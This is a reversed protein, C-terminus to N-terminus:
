AIVDGKYIKSINKLGFGCYNSQKDGSFDYFKLPEILNFKALSSVDKGHKRNTSVFDDNNLWQTFGHIREDEVDIASHMLGLMNGANKGITQM